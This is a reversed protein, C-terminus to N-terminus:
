AQNIKAFQDQPILVEPAIDLFVINNQRQYLTTLLADLLKPFCPNKKDKSCDEVTKTRKLMMPIRQIIAQMAEADHRGASGWFHKYELILQSTTDQQAMVFMRDDLTALM